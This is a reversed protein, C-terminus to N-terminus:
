IAVDNNSLLVKLGNTKDVSLTMVQQQPSSLLQTQSGYPSKVITKHHFAINKATQVAIHLSVYYTM